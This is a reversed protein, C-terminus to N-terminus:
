ANFNVRECSGFLSLMKYKGTRIDHLVGDDHVRFQLFSGEPFDPDMGGPIITKKVEPTFTLCGVMTAVPPGDHMVDAPGGDEMFAWISKEMTYVNVHEQSWDAVYGDENVRGGKVIKQAPDRSVYGWGMVIRHDENVKTVEYRGKYSLDGERTLRDSLDHQRLWAKATEPDWLGAGFELRVVTDGNGSFNPAYVASLGNAISVKKTLGDYDLQKSVYLM